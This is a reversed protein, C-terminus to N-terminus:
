GTLSLSALRHTEQTQHRAQWMRFVGYSGGDIKSHYYFRGREWTGWLGEADPFAVFKVHDAGHASGHSKFLELHETGETVELVKVLKGSASATKLSSTYREQFGKIREVAENMGWTPEGAGVRTKCRAGRMGAGAGGSLYALPATAAGDPAHPSSALSAARTSPSTEMTSAASAGDEESPIRSISPSLVPSESTRITMWDEVQCSELPNQAGGGGLAVAWLRALEVPDDSPVREFAGSPLREFTAGTGPADGGAAAAGTARAFAASRAAMNRRHLNTEARVQDDDLSPGHAWQLARNLTAQRLSYAGMDDVGTALLAGSEELTMWLRHEPGPTGNPSFEMCVWEIREMDDDADDEAVGETGHEAPSRRVIADEKLGRYPQFMMAAYCGDTVRHEPAVLANVLLRSAQKKLGLCHSKVHDRVQHLAGHRLIAARGNENRDMLNAALSLALEQTNENQAQILSFLCVLAAESLEHLREQRLLRRSTVRIATKLTDIVRLRLPVGNRTGSVDSPYGMRALWKFTSMMSHWDSAVARYLRKADSANRFVNPSADGAESLAKSAWLDLDDQAEVVTKCTQSMAFLSRGDIFRLIKRISDVNLIQLLHCPKVIRQARVSAKIVTETKKSEAEKAAFRSLLAKLNALRDNLDSTKSKYENVTDVLLKSQGIVAAPAMGLRSLTSALQHASAPGAEQAEADGSNM